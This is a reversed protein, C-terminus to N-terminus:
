IGRRIFLLLVVQWLSRTPSAAAVSFEPVTPVMM